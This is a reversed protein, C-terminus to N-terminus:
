SPMMFHASEREPAARIRAFRGLMQYFEENTKRLAYLSVVRERGQRGMEASEDPHSLLYALSNACAQFDQSAFQLGSYGNGVIEAGGGRDPVVAPIACSQAEATVLGFHERESPHVFVTAANYWSKLENDDPPFRDVMLVSDQLRYHTILNRVEAAKPGDGILILAVNSITKRLSAFAQILLDQRKMKQITGVSLVLEQDLMSEPLREQEFLRTKAIARPMPVFHNVNVGPFNVEAPIGFRRFSEACWRSNAVVGDALLYTLHHIFGRTVRNTIGGSAIFAWADFAHGGHSYRVVPCIGLGALSTTSDNAVIVDPEVKRVFYRMKLIGKLGPSTGLHCDLIPVKESLWAPRARVKTSLITVEHGRALLYNARSSNFRGSGSYASM